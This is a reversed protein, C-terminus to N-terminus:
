NNKGFFKVAALNVTALIIIGPIGTLISNITFKLANIGPLLSTAASLIIFLAALTLIYSVPASVLRLKDIKSIFYLITVFLGLQVMMVQILQFNPNGTIFYNIVPSFLATIVATHFRFFLVAILPAYFIPLLYAGAPRGDIAPLLHILLPILVAGSLLFITEKIQLRSAINIIYSRSTISQM